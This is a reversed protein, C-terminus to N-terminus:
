ENSKYQKAYVFIKDLVNELIAEKFMDPNDNMFKHTFEDAKLLQFKYNNLTLIEGLM